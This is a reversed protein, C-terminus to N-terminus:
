QDRHKFLKRIVIIMGIIVAIGFAFTLLDIFDPM